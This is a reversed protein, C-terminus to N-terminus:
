LWNLELRRGNVWLGKLRARGDNGISLIALVRASEDGQRRLLGSIREAEAQDVYFYSVNEFTTRVTALNQPKGENDPLQDCTAAGRVAVEGLALAAERSHAVGKPAYPMPTGPPPPAVYEPGNYSLALWPANAAVFTRCADAGGITAQLNLQVYHGSLLARPDVPAMEMMIERGAARAAGERVVIAILGLVCLLAVSMIRLAAGFKM